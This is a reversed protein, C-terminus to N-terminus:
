LLDEPFFEKTLTPRDHQYSWGLTPASGVVCLLLYAEIYRKVEEFKSNSSGERLIRAINCTEDMDPSMLMFRRTGGQTLEWITSMGSLPVDLSIAGLNKSDWTVNFDDFDRM